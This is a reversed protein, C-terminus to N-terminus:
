VMKTTSTRRPSRAPSAAGQLEIVDVPATPVEDHPALSVATLLQGQRDVHALRESGVLPPTARPALVPVQEQPNLRRRRPELSVTDGLDHVGDAAPGVQAMM